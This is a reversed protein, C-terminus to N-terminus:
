HDLGPHLVAVSEVIKFFRKRGFKLSLSEVDIFVAMKIAIDITSGNGVWAGFCKRHIKLFVLTLLWHFVDVNGGYNLIFLAIREM